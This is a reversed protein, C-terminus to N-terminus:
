MDLIQFRDEIELQKTLVLIPTQCLKRIMQLLVSGDMVPMFTDLIIRGYPVQMDNGNGAHINLCMTGDNFFEYFLKRM